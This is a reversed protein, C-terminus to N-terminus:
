TSSATASKKKIRQSILKDRKKENKKIVRTKKVRPRRLKKFKTQNKLAWSPKDHHTLDVYQACYVAEYYMFLYLRLNLSFTPSFLLLLLLFFYYFGQLSHIFTLTYLHPTFLSLSFSPLLTDLNKVIPHLVSKLFSRWLSKTRCSWM